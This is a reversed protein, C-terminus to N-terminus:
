RLRFCTGDFANDAFTTTSSVIRRRSKKKRPLQVKSADLMQSFNRAEAGCDM